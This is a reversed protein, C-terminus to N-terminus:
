TYASHPLYCLCCCGSFFPLLSLFSFSCFLLWMRWVSTGYFNIAACHLACLRTCAPSGSARGGREGGEALSALRCQAMVTMLWIYYFALLPMQRDVCGEGGCAVGVLLQQGSVTKACVVCLFTM